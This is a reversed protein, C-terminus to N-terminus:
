EAFIIKVLKAPEIRFASGKGEFFAHEGIMHTNLDTWRITQNTDIQKVTTIAKAFRGSHPWPCVIMGKYDEYTIVLRGAQVPNGLMSKAADTLHQMKEAVLKPTYGLKRLQAVDADTIEQLGREDDGLFGDAVLRSSRLLQELKESKPSQKM